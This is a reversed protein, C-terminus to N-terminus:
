KKAKDKPKIEDVITLILGELRAATNHDPIFKAFKILDTEELVQKMQSLPTAEFRKQKLEELLESTTRELAEVKFTRELYLRLVDSLESYFEKYKKEELYGKDKLRKIEILVREHAPKRSEASGMEKIKRLVIKIILFVLLAGALLGMVWTWFRTMGISVPGKIPRIDDKDTIKAGVSNVKLSVPETRAEGADGAEVQYPMTIPPIKLDGLEFVTMTLIYTEQIRNQGKKVPSLQVSKIEFPKINVKPDPASVTVKRPRDVLIYLKFEDGIQIKDKLLKTELTIPARDAAQAPLSCVLSQLSCGFFVVGAIFLRWDRTQPRRDVRRM